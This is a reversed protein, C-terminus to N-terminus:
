GGVIIKKWFALTECFCIHLPSFYKWVVIFVNEENNKYGSRFM